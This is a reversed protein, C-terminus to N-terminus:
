AGGLDRPALPSGVAGGMLSNTDVVTDPIGLPPVGTGVLRAAIKIVDSGTGADAQQLTEVYYGHGGQLTFPISIFKNWDRPNNGTVEAFVFQNGAPDTGNPNLYFEGRDFCRLFFLWDGSVPPIFVGRIRTGVPTAHQTDDPYVVRSDM